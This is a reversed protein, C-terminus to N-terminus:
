GSCCDFLRVGASKPEMYTLALVVDNREDRYESRLAWGLHPLARSGQLRVIECLMRDDHAKVAVWIPIGTNNIIFVAVAGCGLSIAAVRVVLSLRSGRARVPFQRVIETAMLAGAESRGDM